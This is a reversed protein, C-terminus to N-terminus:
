GKGEKQFAQFNAIATKLDRFPAPEWVGHEDYVDFGKQAVRVLELAQAKWYGFWCHYPQYEIKFKM